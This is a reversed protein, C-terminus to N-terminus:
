HRLRGRGVLMCFVALAVANVTLGWGYSQLSQAHIPHGFDGLGVLAGVVALAVFLLAFILM